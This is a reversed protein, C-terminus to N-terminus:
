DNPIILLHYKSDNLDGAPIRHEYHTIKNINIFNLMNRRSDFYFRLYAKSLVIDKKGWQRWGYVNFGIFVVYLAAQAYIGRTFDVSLWLVNCLGWVLFGYKNQRSNLYTGFITTATLLWTFITFSDM